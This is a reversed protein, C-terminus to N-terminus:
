FRWKQEEVVVVDPTIRIRNLADACGINVSVFRKLDIIITPKLSKSNDDWPWNQIIWHTLENDKM